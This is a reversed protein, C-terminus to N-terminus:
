RIPLGLLGTKPKRPARRVPARRTPLKRVKPQKIAEKKLLGRRVLSKATVVGVTAKQKPNYTGADKRIKTIRRAVANAEKKTDVVSLMGRTSKSRAKAQSTYVAYQKQNPAYSGVWSPKRGM